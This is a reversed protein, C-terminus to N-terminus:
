TCIPVSFIVVTRVQVAVEMFNVTGDVAGSPEVVISTWEWYLPSLLSYETVMALLLGVIVLIAGVEAARPADIVMVPVFNPLECPEPM